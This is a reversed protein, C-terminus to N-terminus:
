SQRPQGGHEAWLARAFAKWAPGGHMMVGEAEASKEMVRLMLAAVSFLEVKAMQRYDGHKAADGANGAGGKLAERALERVQAEDSWDVSLAMGMRVIQQELAQTEDSFFEFGTM